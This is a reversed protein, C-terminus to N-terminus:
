RLRGGEITCRRLTRNQDNPWDTRAHLCSINDWMVLDGSRWVHEYVIAPDEILEFLRDLIAQSEDRELGEIWLTTLRSIFLGKRGSDPNVVIMPQVFHMISDLDAGIDVKKGNYNYAHMVLANEFRAKWDDPLNDYAACLSAFKTHGGESPVEIGYLLSVKHPEEIYMKDAAMEKATRQRNKRAMVVAYKNTVTLDISM